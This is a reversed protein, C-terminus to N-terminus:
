GKRVRLEGFLYRHPRSVVKAFATYSGELRGLFAAQGYLDSGASDATTQCYNASIAFRDM